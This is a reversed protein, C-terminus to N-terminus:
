RMSASSGPVRTGQASGHTREDPVRIHPHCGAVACSQFTQAPVHKARRKRLLAQSQPVVATHLEIQLRRPVVARVMQHELEDAM